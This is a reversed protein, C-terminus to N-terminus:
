SGGGKKAPGALRLAKAETEAILDLAQRARPSAADLQQAKQYAARAAAADRLVEDHLFGVMEQIAAKQRVTANTSLREAEQLVSLARQATAVAGRADYRQRLSLAFQTLKSGTEIQWGLTNPLYRNSKALTEDVKASNGAKHYVLADNFNQNREAARAAATQNKTVVEARDRPRNGPSPDNVVPVPALDAVATVDLRDVLWSTSKAASIVVKIPAAPTTAPLSFDRGNFTVVASQKARDLVFNFDLTAISRSESDLTVNYPLQLAVDGLMVIGGGNKDKLFTLSAPGVELTSWNQPTDGFAPKSILRVTLKSASFSRSVEAGAPVTFAPDVGVISTAGTVQWGALSVPTVLVQAALPRALQTVALFVTLRVVSGLRLACFPTADLFLFNRTRM